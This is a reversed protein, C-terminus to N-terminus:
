CKNVAARLLSRDARNAIPMITVFHITANVTPTYTISLQVM